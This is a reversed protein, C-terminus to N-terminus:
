KPRARDLDCWVATTYFLYLSFLAVPPFRIREAAPPKESLLGLPRVIYSTDILPHIM